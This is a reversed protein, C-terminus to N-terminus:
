SSSEKFHWEYNFNIYSDEAEYIPNTPDNDDEYGCLSQEQRQKVHFMDSVTTATREDM